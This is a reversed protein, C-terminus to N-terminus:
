ARARWGARLVTDTVGSGVQEGAGPTESTSDRIRPERIRDVTPQEDGVTETGTTAQQAGRQNLVRQHPLSLTRPSPSPLRRTARTRTRADAHVHDQVRLPGGTSRQRTSPLARGPARLCQQLDYSGVAGLDFARQHRALEATGVTAAPQTRPTRSPPPHDTGMGTVLPAPRAPGSADSARRCVHQDASVREQASTVQDLHDARRQHGLGGSGAMAPRHIQHAHRHRRHPTPQAAERDVGLRDPGPERDQAWPRSGSRARNAGVAVGVPSATSAMATAARATDARRAGTSGHDNADIALRPRNSELVPQGQAGAPQAALRPSKTGVLHM